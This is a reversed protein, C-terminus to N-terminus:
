VRFGVHHFSQGYLMIGLSTIPLQLWIEPSEAPPIVDKNPPHPKKKQPQYTPPYISQGQM